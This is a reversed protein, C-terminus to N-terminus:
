LAESMPKRKSVPVPSRYPRNHCRSALARCARSCQRQLRRRCREDNRADFVDLAPRPSCVVSSAEEDVGAVPDVVLRHSTVPMEDVRMRPAHDEARDLQDVDDAVVCARPRDVAAPV